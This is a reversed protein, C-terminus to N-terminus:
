KRIQFDPGSVLLYLADEVRDQRNNQDNNGDYPDDGGFTIAALILERPNQFIGDPGDDSPDIPYRKKLNGYTLRRDLEDLMALNALFETTQTGTPTPATTPYVEAVLREFDLRYNDYRDASTDTVGFATRQPPDNAGGFPLGNVGTLNVFLERYYNINRIVDQENVLQMEPSVLGSNALPGSPAYDPLYWNFVTEQFFSEMVLSATSTSGPVGMHLRQNLRHGTAQSAPYGFNTLYIDPNSYDGPADDFPYATTPTFPIYTFAGLNRILQFACELASKKMGITPDSLDIVRAEPDLLLAKLTLALDGESDKFVTAVRHLYERSPNSKVFRQILRRSIFAPTSGHSSVMDYDPVGDGPKGALWDLADEMDAIGQETADTIDSNDITTGAFTKISRDHYDGFMKMPYTYRDGFITSQGQSTTFSTLNPQDDYAVGGWPNNNTSFSQGTIIKAFERIDANTYTNNPSGDTGLRLTGDPWIDFLGISFLQMNERALNEDPFIDNAGDGDVDLAKQNQISSLWNGMIPSWNVFGLVDRYHSFAHINLQDQYNGAALPSNRITDDIASVVVIQQLAFGMKQRLQDPAGSMMQSHTNRRDSNFLFTGRNNDSALAGQESTAPYPGSLHWKAPDPHSRDIIPWTSPLSPPDTEGDSPNLSPDFWGRLKMQQFNSAIQYDVHFYQPIAMQADLWDEFASHRHYSPNTLRENEIAAVMSAVEEQTSGFTAQDLFRRVEADLDDGTLQPFEASGPAAPADPTGPDAITGGALELFSWIEGAPNSVTHVNYYLPTEDNQGFLSDIITQKSAGGGSTPIAGSSITLDWEYNDLSGLRPDSAPPNDGEAGPVNTIAYIIDGVRESSVTGPNSKHIHGDQQNSTLGTFETSLLLRTRPGNLIATTSGSGSSATVAAGDQSFLGTFIAFNSPSEPLDFLQISAGNITDSIEYAADPYLALNLTEPYENINDKIAIVTLTKSMEGFEFSVTDTIVTGDEDILQYDEAEAPEDGASGVLTCCLGDCVTATNGTNEMPAICLKAEVATLPGTRSVVVAGHDVNLNPSNDEFAATDSAQLSFTIEGTSDGMLSSAASLDAVGNNTESDFFLFNNHPALLIEDADAIGDGDQDGDSIQLRFFHQAALSVSELASSSVYGRGDILGDSVFWDDFTVDPNDFILVQFRTFEEVLAPDDRFALGQHGGVLNGDPDSIYYDFTRPAVSRPTSGSLYRFPTDLATLVELRYTQDANIPVAVQNGASGGARIAPIDGLLDFDIRPGETANGESKLFLSLNENTPGVRVLASFFLHNNTSPFFESEVNNVPDHVREAQGSMGAPATVLEANNPLLAGQQNADDYNHELLINASQSEITSSALHPATIIETGTLGPGTWAVQCHSQPQASLGHVELFYHQGETLTIAASRQNEFSDFDDLAISQGSLVQAVLSLNTTFEDTSLFLQASSGSSLFFSYDGTQPPTILTFLRFGFGSSALPPVVLSSLRSEGDPSDPFATLNTLSTLDNGSTNAWFQQTVNGSLLYSQTDLSLSQSAGDGMMLPGFPNFTQLDQSEGFQYLKGLKTPFTFDLPPNDPDLASIEFRPFDSRDFPDTGAASEQLNTYADGDTDDGPLLDQAGYSQEWVDSLGDLDLDVAPASLMLALFATVPPFLRAPSFTTM